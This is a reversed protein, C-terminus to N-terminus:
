LIFGGDVVINQGTIFGSREHALFMVANAVDEPKGLRMLPTEDALSRLDSESYCDLMKTKIVGPSVCNVRIGGPGLEKALAKTLTIVGGKAASYVSECSAGAVGWVSAINIIAGSHNKIMHRAAARCSYVTGTLDTNILHLIESDTMDQLLGTFATGANNVAVDIHNLFNEAQLYMNGVDQPNSIDAKIALCNPLSQCLSDITAKDTNYQLALSFGAQSFTIAIQRGIDGSAGTILATKM